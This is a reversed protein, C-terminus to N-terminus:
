PNKEKKTGVKRRTTQSTRTTTPDPLGPGSTTQRRFESSRSPPGRANPIWFPRSSTRRRGTSVISGRGCTQSFSSRFNRPKQDGSRWPRAAIQQDAIQRAELRLRGQATQRSRPGAEVDLWTRFNSGAVLATHTSFTPFMLSMGSRLDASFLWHNCPSVMMRARVQDRKAM